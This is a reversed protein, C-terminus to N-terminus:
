IKIKKSKKMTSSKYDKLKGSLKINQKIEENLSSKKAEKSEKSIYNKIDYFKDPTLASPQELLSVGELSMGKKHRISGSYEQVKNREGILDNKAIKKTANSKNGKPHKTKKKSSYIISYKPQEDISDRFGESETENYCENSDGTHQKVQDVKDKVSYQLKGKYDKPKLINPHKTDSLRSHKSKEESKDFSKYKNQLSLTKNTNKKLNLNNAIDVNKKEEVGDSIKDESNYYNEETRNTRQDKLKDTTQKYDRLRRKKM